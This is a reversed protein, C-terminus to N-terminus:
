VFMYSALLRRLIRLSFFDRNVPSRALTAFIKYRANILVAEIIQLWTTACLKDLSVVSNRKRTMIVNVTAIDAIEECNEGTQWPLYKVFM